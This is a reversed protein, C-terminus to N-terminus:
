PLFGRAKAPMSFLMLAWCSGVCWAGHTIGFKLADLDAAVGFAALELHNHSRNLCLQKLPSCQWILAILGVVIAPWYAQPALVGAILRVMSVIAGAAMWVVAYGVAFLAVSRFRRHKFNREHVHLIPAILTPLMMAILMLAWGTALSSVPNMTLLARFSATSLQLGMAQCYSQGAMGAHGVLLAVWGVASLLLITSGIRRRARDSATM